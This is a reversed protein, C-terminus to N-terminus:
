LPNFGRTKYNITVEYIGAEFDGDVLSFDIDKINDSKGWAGNTGTVVLGISDGIDVEQLKRNRQINIDIPNLGTFAISSFDQKAQKNNETNVTM